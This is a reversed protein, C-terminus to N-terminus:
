SPSLLRSLQTALDDDLTELRGLAARALGGEGLRAYVQGLRFWAAASAPEIGVSRELARRAAALRDLQALARGQLYWPEADGPARKSWSASLTDLAPWDRDRELVAAQLFDPQEQAPREWFAREQAAFPGIARKVGGGALLAAVWEAPAAFYSPGGGRLRFTLIGVLRQQDDFLGGGSAGSNFWNSSQIVRSGDLRHLAVVSGRSTQMGQGGTYGLATVPQGVRLADAHGLGVVHGTIGPVELLCLDHDADSAEAAVPWRRGESLVHVETADRTVHCNTVVRREGVIVGSGISYGGQVRLVEVKPVSAALRVFAARDVDARSAAALALGVILLLTRKM